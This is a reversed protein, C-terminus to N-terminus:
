GLGVAPTGQISCLISKPPKGRAEDSHFGTYWWENGGFDGRGPYAFNEVVNMWDGSRQRNPDKSKPGYKCSGDFFLTCRLGPGPSITLKNSSFLSTCGKPFSATQRQTALNVTACQGGDHCVVLDTPSNIGARPWTPEPKAPAASVSALLAVLSSTILLSHM